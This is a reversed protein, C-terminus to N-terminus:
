PVGGADGIMWRYIWEGGDRRAQRKVLCLRFPYMEACTKLKVLADEQMFGKTEHLEMTGDALMIAFDPTYRCDQGLKLTIGEYKMWAIEGALMRQTLLAHYDAELKNMKGAPLSRGKAFVRKAFM